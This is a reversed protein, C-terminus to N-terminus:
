NEINKDKFRLALEVLADDVYSDMEDIRKIKDHENELNTTAEKTLEEIIEKIAVEKDFNEGILYKTDDNYEQLERAAILPYNLFFNFNNEFENFNEPKLNSQVSENDGILIQKGSYYERYLTPGIEILLTFHTTELTQFNTRNDRTFEYRFEGDYDKTNLAVNQLDSIRVVFVNRGELEKFVKEAYKQKKVELAANEYQEQLRAKAKEFEQGLRASFDIDSVKNKRFAEKEKVGVKTLDSKLIVIPSKMYNSYYNNEFKEFTENGEVKELNSNDIATVVAKSYYEVYHNDDTKYLFTVRNRLLDIELKKAPFKYGKTDKDRIINVARLDDINCAVIKGESILKEVDDLVM